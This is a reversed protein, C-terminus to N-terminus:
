GIGDQSYSGTINSLPPRCTVTLEPSLPLTELVLPGALSWGTPSLGLIQAMACGGWEVGYALRM